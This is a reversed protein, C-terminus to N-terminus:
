IVYLNFSRYSICDNHEIHDTRNEEVKVNITGDSVYYSPIQKRVM